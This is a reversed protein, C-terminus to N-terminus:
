NSTTSIKMLEVKQFIRKRKRFNRREIHCDDNFWDKKLKGLKKKGIHKVKFYESTGFTSKASNLLINCLNDLLSNIKLKDVSSSAETINLNMSTVEYLLKKLEAIKRLDIQNQFESCKGQDWKHIKESHTYLNINENNEFANEFASCSM